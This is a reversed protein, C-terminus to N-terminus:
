KVGNKHLMDHFWIFGWGFIYGVIYTVILLLIMNYFVFPTIIDFPISIHHLTLIWLYFAKVGSPTIWVALSWVLHFSSLLLGLAVGAKHKSM